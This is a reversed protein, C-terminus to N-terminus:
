PSLVRQSILACGRPMDTEGAHRDRPIEANQQDNEVLGAEFVPHWPMEADRQHNSDDARAHVTARCRQTPQDNPAPGAEFSSACGRQM